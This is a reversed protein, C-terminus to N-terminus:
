INIMSQNNHDEDEAPKESEESNEDEAPFLICYIDPCIDLQRKLSSINKNQIAKAQEENVDMSKMLEQITISSNFKANSAISDLAEIIKNM